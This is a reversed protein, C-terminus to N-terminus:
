RKPAVPAVFLMGHPRAPGGTGHPWTARGFDVGPERTFEDVFARDLRLDGTVPDLHVLRIRRDGDLRAAPVDVTYAAVAIRTGDASMVLGSPHAGDRFADTAIELRDAVRPRWPDRLDLSLIEDRGSLAVVYFRDDPTVVADVPRADAGFDFVLRFSPESLQLSDSVYLGGGEHTAVLVMRRQNLARVALPGLNEQGRPGAELVALGHLRLDALSWVQLTIGQVLDSETTPAYGHAHNSTVLWGGRRVIAGDSPAVIYGRADKDAASIQRRFRGRADLEVLGGPADFLERPTGRHGARDPCTVLVPGDGLAIVSLPARLGWDREGEVVGALAPERPDQLDFTFVRSSLIGTGFVLGDSRAVRSLGHPENGRSGVTLTRLVQGYTESRPDADLVALFDEHARDADGAWAVLYPEGTFPPDQSGFWCGSSGMALVAAGM